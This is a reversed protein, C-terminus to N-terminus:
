ARAGGRRLLRVTWAGLVALLAVLVGALIGRHRETFPKPAEAPPGHRPNPGLAGLHAEGPKAASGRALVAALDYAPAATARDGVLLTHPGSSEARFVIEDPRWSLAVGQIALPSADGDEIELRLRKASGLAVPITLGQREGPGAGPSRWLV